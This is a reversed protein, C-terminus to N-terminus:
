QRAKLAELLVSLELVNARVDQVLFLKGKMQSGEESPGVQGTSAELQTLFTHIVQRKLNIM